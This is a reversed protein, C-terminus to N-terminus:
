LNSEGEQAPHDTPLIVTFVVGRDGELNRVEITGGHRQVIGYSVTLGLGTSDPKTTFFPDFLRDVHEEPIHPGDNTLALSIMGDGDEAQATALIHGGGSMAETANLVLNMLVQIIQNPAVVVPPLDPALNTTLQVDARQLQKGVLDLTRQVLDAVSVSVPVDDAPQAFDLIRRNIEILRDIEERVIQM